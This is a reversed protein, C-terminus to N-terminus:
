VNGQQELGARASNRIRKSPGSDALLQLAEHGPTAAVKRQLWGSAELLAAPEWPKGLVIARFLSWEQLRRVLFPRGATAQTMAGAWPEFAPGLYLGCARRDVHQVVAAEAMAPNPDGLVKAVLALEDADAVQEFERLYAWYRLHEDPEDQPVDGPHM